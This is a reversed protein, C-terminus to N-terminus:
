QTESSKALTALVTHGPGVVASPIVDDNNGWGATFIGERAPSAPMEGGAFLEEPNSHNQLGSGGLAKSMTLGLDLGEGKVHGNRAGEVVVKTTYLVPGAPGKSVNSEAKTAYGRLLATPRISRLITTSRQM